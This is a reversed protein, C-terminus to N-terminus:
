FFCGTSLYYQHRGSRPGQSCGWLRSKFEADWQRSAKSFSPTCNSLCLHFYFIFFSMKKRRERNTFYGGSWLVALLSRVGYREVDSCILKIWKKPASDSCISKIQNKRHLESVVYSFFSDFSLIRQMYCQCLRSNDRFLLALTVPLSCEERASHFAEWFWMCSQGPSFILGGLVPRTNLRVQRLSRYLRRRGVRAHWLM